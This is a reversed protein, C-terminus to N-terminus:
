AMEGHENFTTGIKNLFSITNHVVDKPM